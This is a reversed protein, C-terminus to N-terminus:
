MYGNPLSYHAPSFLSHFVRQGTILPSIICGYKESVRSKVRVIEDHDPLPNAPDLWVHRDTLLRFQRLKNRGM